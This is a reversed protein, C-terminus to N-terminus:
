ADAQLSSHGGLPMIHSNSLGLMSQLSVVHGQGPGQFDEHQRMERSLGYAVQATCAACQTLENVTCWDLTQGRLEPFQKWGGKCVQHLAAELQLVSQLLLLCGQSLQALSHDTLYLM